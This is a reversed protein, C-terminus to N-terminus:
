VLLFLVTGVVVVALLLVALQRGVGGPGLRQQRPLSLPLLLVNFIVMVVYVLLLEVLKKGAAELVAVVRRGLV